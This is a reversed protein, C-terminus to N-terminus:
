AKYEEYVGDVDLNGFNLTKLVYLEIGRSILICCAQKCAILDAPNWSVGNYHCNETKMIKYFKNKLTETKM